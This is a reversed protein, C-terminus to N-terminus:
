GTLKKTEYGSHFGWDLLDAKADEFKTVFASILM